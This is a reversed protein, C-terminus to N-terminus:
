ALSILFNNRLGKIFEKIKEKHENEFRNIYANLRNVTNQVNNVSAEVNGQKLLVTHNIINTCILFFVFFFM